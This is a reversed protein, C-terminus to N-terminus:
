GVTRKGKILSQVMRIDDTDWDLNNDTMLYDLMMVSADEHHWKSDPRCLVAVV